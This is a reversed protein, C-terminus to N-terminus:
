PEIRYIRVVPGPHWFSPKFEVLLRLDTTSFVSTYFRHGAEFEDWLASGPPPPDGLYRQYNESSLMLYRVGHRRLEDITPYPGDSRGNSHFDKRLHVLRYRPRRRAEQRIREVVAEPLLTGEPNRIFRKPDFLNPGYFFNEYGIISEVPIHEQIWKEALARTDTGTLRVDYIVTKLAGAAVFLAIGAMMWRRDRVAPRTLMEGTLLVLAPFIPMLYGIGTRRWSGIVLLTPVIHALLLLRKRRSLDTFGLILGALLLAGIGWDSEVLQWLPWLLPIEATHGLMGKGMRGSTDLLQHLFRGPTLLWYPSGIVFGALAAGAAKSVGSRLFVRANGAQWWASLLLPLILFGANYKTATALGVALGAVILDRERGSSHYRFVLGLALASMFAVPAELLIWHSSYVHGYSFLLLVAALTGATAGFYRRGIRYVLWVGLAGSLASLGRGLLFLPTPDLFYQVGFDIAGGYVGFLRGTLYFLSYVFLLVYTYFTPYVVYVPELSRRAGMALANGLHFSEDGVYLSPLGYGIGWLRVALALLFLLAGPLWEPRKERWTVNM